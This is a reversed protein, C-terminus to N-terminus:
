PQSPPTPAPAGTGAAPAPTLTSGTPGQGSPALGQGTPAGQQQQGPMGQKLDFIFEWENYKQRDKYVKISPGKFNSAVGALGGAALTNNFASGSDAQRPQRLMDNIMGVAPNSGGGPIPPTTGAGQPNFPQGPMGPIVQNANIPNTQGSNPLNQGPFLSTQGPIQPQGPLGPQFSGSQGGTTNQGPTQQGAYQQGSYQQGPYQQGPIQQGPVLQGPQQGPITPQVGPQTGQPTGPTGQAPQLFIPPWNRPDNPDSTPANQAMGSAPILPRDSPRRLVAANVDPPGNATGNGTTSTTTATPTTPSTAGTTTLTGPANPGAANQPNNKDDPSPPKQVQSDTLQGAANVHILRWEDKGTMPDIYRRRLFRQNNTNELDEIKSPYKKFAVFYMQIARKYQEGRGILLQEKERQSEFAVRPMQQYLMLAVAAALLFVILLAFGRENKGRRIETV